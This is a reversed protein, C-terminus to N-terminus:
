TRLRKVLAKNYHRFYGHAKLFAAVKIGCNGPLISKHNLVNKSLEVYLETNSLPGDSDAKSSFSSTTEDGRGCSIILTGFLGLTTLLKKM